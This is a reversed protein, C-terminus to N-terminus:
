EDGMMRILNWYEDASVVETTAPPSPPSVAVQQQQPSPKRCAVASVGVVAVVTLLCRPPNYRMLSVIATRILNRIVNEIHSMNSREVSLEIGSCGSGLDFTPVQKPTKRSCM